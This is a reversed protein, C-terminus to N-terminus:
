VGGLGREATCREWLPTASDNAPRAPAAHWRRRILRFRSAEEPGEQGAKMPGITREWFGLWDELHRETTSRSDRIKIWTVSVLAAEEPFPCVRVINCKAIVSQKDSLALYCSGEM